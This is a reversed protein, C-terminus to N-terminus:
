LQFKAVQDYLQKAVNSLAESAELSEHAADASSQATVAVQSTSKSIQEVSQVAILISQQIERNSQKQTDLAEFISTITSNIEHIVAIIQQIATASTGIDNQLTEVQLRIQETSERTARSLDKVESAVVAFGKGAEGASAAEITANLALLNTRGAIDKIVGVVRGISQSAEVLNEVVQKANDAMALAESSISQANTASQATASMSKNLAEANSAITQISQSVNQSSEVVISVQKGTNEAIYNLGVSLDKMKEASDNTQNVSSRVNGIISRLNKVMQELAQGLVDDKSLIEPLTTLDQHSVRSAIHARAELQDSMSNLSDALLGIEDRNKYQFRDVVNGKGVSVAFDTASRLARLIPRLVFFLLLGVIFSAIFAIGLIYWRFHNMRANEITLDQIVWLDWDGAPITTQVALKPRGHLTFYVGNKAGNKLFSGYELSDITKKLILTSDAHAVIMGDKRNTLFSFNGEQNHYTATFFRFFAEIDIPAYLVAAVKDSSPKVPVAITFFPRKTINSILVESLVIKGNVAEQFYGRASFKHGLRKADSSAITLGETNKLTITQYYKYVQSMKGFEITSLEQASPDGEAASQVFNMREWAMIDLKRDDLWSDMSVSTASVERILNELKRTQSMDNMMFISFLGSAVVALGLLGIVAILIKAGIKMQLLHNM